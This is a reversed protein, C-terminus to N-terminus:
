IELLEREKRELAADVQDVYKRTDADLRKEARSIEDEGVEGQLDDLDDKAKRRLSRLAVRADEAKARVLKVFERRREETLEPLVVRIVNGDNSPNVGLNQTDRIANEIDKMASRDYPTVVLTRAEPNQFSALQQLPTPTGYYDVKVSHFMAPNARGTRVTAFDEEAVQVAKAMRDSLEAFIEEIM